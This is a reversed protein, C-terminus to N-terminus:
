QNEVKNSYAIDCQFNYQGSGIEYTDKGNPLIVTADTNPPITVTLYFKEKEMKWKSEIKGYMSAYSAEVYSLQASPEPQMIIHKYGPNEVDSKIGAVTSYMWDGIAGYAYHNFSNMVPTQFSGDPKIGDWREWITTAGMTVPYLWSPYKKQLLLKYAVDTRGNESLVHCLYPTGLFGTSLHYNRTEINKVLYDLAISKKDDPILNFYLALTYATQTHPGLRGSAAMFERQFEEKIQQLMQEHLKAEDHKELILAVEKLITTSYAFFATSIFDFDTFGPKLNWNGPPTFYLWDGINFGGNVIHNEGALSKLHYVWDMMNDYLKELIRKDGYKQYMTYPLITVVDGWGTAGSRKRVDPIVLPVSGNEFQDVELDLLWKTYFAATNYNFISTSAFVQADGTWGMREDRQPCDTPIDLFNGKQSWKINQHLKTILTDSCKFYGTEEMDSHVVIASIDTKDVNEKYDEIKVYRFGQFTFYPEYVMEKNNKFIYTVKQKASRLNDIYFNGDKDLVEAHLITITDGKNGKLRIKARGTINQGFDFVLENKPTKIKKIPWLEEIRKVPNGVSPVINDKTYDPTSVNKWKSDDFGPMNWGKIEYNADYIEGDYINSMRIPGTTSKWSEDSVITRKEGDAFEIELQYLLALQEGYINRKNEFAFRGRYWGDGLMVGAANGGEKLLNSVNYVKYQLRKHYSTFGPTFVEETVPIGNITSLYLGKSTIYLRAKNIDKDLRFQKLLLPSPNDTQTNEQVNPSIWNAKWMKTDMLGTEWYHIDSWESERNHNDWVKVRWHYRTKSLLEDGKYEVHLSQDSSIKSDWVLDEFNTDSKSVQIRYAKQLIGNLTTDTKIQWSLRPNPIDMGMPNHLYECVMKIPKLNQSYSQIAMLLFLLIKINKM